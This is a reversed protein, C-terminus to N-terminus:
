HKGYRKYPKNGITFDENYENTGNLMEDSAQRRKAAEIKQKAIVTRMEIYASICDLKVGNAEMCFALDCSDTPTLYIHEVWNTKEDVTHTTVQGKFQVYSNKVQVVGNQGFLVKGCGDCIQQNVQAM